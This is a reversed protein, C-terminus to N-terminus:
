PLWSEVPNLLFEEIPIGEQGVLVQRKPKHVKAFASMGALRQRTRGSKVEISVVDKGANFVFDVEQNRM